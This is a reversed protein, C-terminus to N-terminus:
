QKQARKTTKLRHSFNEERKLQNDFPKKNLEVFM